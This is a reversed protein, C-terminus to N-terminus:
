NVGIKEYLDHKQMYGFRLLSCSETVIVENKISSKWKVNEHRNETVNKRKQSELTSEDFKIKAMNLAKKLDNRINEKRGIFNMEPRTYSFMLETAYGTKEKLVKKVFENFRNSGLGNLARNPHWNKKGWKKWNRKYEQYRWWSEYWEIPNRVFCFEFMNKRKKSSYGFTKLVRNIGKRGAEKLHNRGSMEGNTKAHVRDYNAHKYGIEETEINQKKLVTRVWNGATKPIHYFIAKNEIKVAM